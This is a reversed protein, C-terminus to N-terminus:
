SQTGGARIRYWVLLLACGLRHWWRPPVHKVAFVGRDTWVYLVGGVSQMAKIDGPMKLQQPADWRDTM